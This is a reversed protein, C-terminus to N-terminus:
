KGQSPAPPERFRREVTDVAVISFVILMGIVIMPIGVLCLSIAGVARRLFSPRRTADKM